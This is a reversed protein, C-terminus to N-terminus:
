KGCCNAEHGCTYTDHDCFDSTCPDADTCEKDLLCCGAVVKYVCFTGKKPIWQCAEATCPNNDLCDESAGCACGPWYFPSHVCQNIGSADAVCEDTTCMTNDECDSNTVCEPVMVYSIGDCGWKADPAAADLAADIEAGADAGFLDAADAATEAVSMWDASVDTGIDTDALADAVATSDLSEAIETEADVDSSVASTDAAVTPLAKPGCSILFLAALLRCGTGPLM